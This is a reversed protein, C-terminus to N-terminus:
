VDQPLPPPHSRDALNGQFILLRARRSQSCEDENQPQRAEPLVPVVARNSLSFLVTNRPSASGLAAALDASRTPQDLNFVRCRSPSGSEGDGTFLEDMAAMLLTGSQHEFGPDCLALLRRLGWRM